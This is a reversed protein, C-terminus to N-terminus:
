QISLPVGSSTYILAGSDQVSYAFFVTLEVKEFGLGFFALDRFAFLDEAAALPRPATTGVLTDPNSDWPVYAGDRNLQFLGIGPANVVVHTLGTRGVHAPDVLLTGALSLADFARFTQGFRNGAGLSGGTRIVGGFASATTNGGNRSAMALTPRAGYYGAVQFRTTRMAHVADAGNNADERPVGCPQGLCTSVAPNSFVPLSEANPFHTDYAMITHFSGTVGHGLAWPFTGDAAEVRSHVLGLLHGLEHALTDVSCQANEANNLGPHYVVTVVGQENSFDGRRFAGSGEAIGCAGGATIRGDLLVILDAGSVARWYDISLFEGARGRLDNFAPDLDGSVQYNVPRYMVPRFRIGTQSTAYMDNTQQLLQNIATVPDGGAAADAVYKPTYLILLDIEATTGEVPGSSASNPNTGLLSENYDSIGDSDTDALTDYLAWIFTDQRADDVIVTSSVNPRASERLRVRYAFNFTAGPNLSALTCHLEKFTGNSYQVDKAECGAPADLLDAKDLIFHVSVTQNTIATSSRNVMSVQIDVPQGIVAFEASTTQTIALDSNSIADSQQATHVAGEDAPLRPVARERYLYGLYANGVRRAQLVRKGVPTYVTALLDREGLTLSLIRGAAQGGALEARLGRDGNGFSTAEAVVYGFSEGSALTLTLTAGVSLAEVDARSVSVPVAEVALGPLDLDPGTGPDLFRWLSQAAAPLPLGMLLMLVALVRGPSVRRVSLRPAPRPHLM